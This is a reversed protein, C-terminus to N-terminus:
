AKKRAVVFYGCTELDPHKDLKDLLPALLQDIQWIIVVFSKIFFRVPRPGRIFRAIFYNFKLLWMTFFGAQPSIEVIEFGAKEFLYKLGYVTYRYYDYPSEHEWWQFPVQAIMYGNNKLIRRSESLFIQPECLHELVSLAIVTDAAEDNIPLKKNLDAAIDAKIDHQSNVWDVGTYSDAFQLFWKKFPAEGCGLDYLSGKILDSHTELFDDLIGYVIWNHSKKNHHFHSPRM